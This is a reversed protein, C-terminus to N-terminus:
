DQIYNLFSYVVQFRYIFKSFLRDVASESFLAEPFDDPVSEISKLVKLELHLLIMKTELLVNKSSAINNIDHLFVSDIDYALGSFLRKIIAKPEHATWVIGWGMHRGILSDLGSINMKRPSVMYASVVFIVM